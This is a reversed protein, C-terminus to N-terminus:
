QSLTEEKAKQPLGIAVSENVEYCTNKATDGIKSDLFSQVEEVSKAEWLCVGTKMDGSPFVSHLKLGAPLSPIVEKATEWFQGPNAIQHLAVILM